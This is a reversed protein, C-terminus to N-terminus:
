CELLAPVQCYAPPDSNPSCGLVPELVAVLAQASQTIRRVRPDPGAPAVRRPEAGRRARLRGRALANLRREDRRM